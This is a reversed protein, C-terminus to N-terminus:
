CAHKVKEEILCMPDEDAELGIKIEALDARSQASLRRWCTEAILIADALPRGHAIAIEAAMPYVFCAEDSVGATPDAVGASVVHVECM